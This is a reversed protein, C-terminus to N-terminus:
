GHVINLEVHTEGRVTIFSILLGQRARASTVEQGCADVRTLRGQEYM